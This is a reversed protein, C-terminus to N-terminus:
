REESRIPSKKSGLYPDPVYGVALNGLYSQPCTVEDTATPHQTPTESSEGEAFICHPVGDDTYVVGYACVVVYPTQTPPTPYTADLAVAEPSFLLTCGTLVWLAIVIGLCVLLFRLVPHRFAQLYFNM